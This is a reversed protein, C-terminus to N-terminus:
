LQSSVTNCMLAYVTWTGAVPLTVPVTGEESTANTAMCFSGYGSHFVRVVPLKFYMFGYVPHSTTVWVTGVYTSEEVVHAATFQTYESYWSSTDVSWRFKGASMPGDVTALESQWTSAHLAGDKYLLLYMGRGVLTSYPAPPPPPPPTPCTTSESTTTKDDCAALSCVLAATMIYRLM